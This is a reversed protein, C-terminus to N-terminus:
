DDRNANQLALWREVEGDKPERRGVMTKDFLKREGVSLANRLRKRQGKPFMKTM